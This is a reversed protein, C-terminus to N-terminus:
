RSPLAVNTCCEHEYGKDPEGSINKSSTRGFEPHFTHRCVGKLKVRVGNVYIGDSERVEVTRFGIRTDTRHIRKGNKDLITFVANYLEPSEPSWLSPNNLRGSIRTVPTISYSEFASITEGSLNQIEVVLKSANKLGSLYVDAVFQGDAHADVAVRCINEPPKAEMYVPRFIGGFIWYDSEREALSVSMNDSQKKVFVELENEKGFQILKGINYSFRYFAGQHIPGAPRGNIKVEADTMVGEFVIRIEKNKWTSPAMFRYKYRGTENLRDEPKSRGFNYAGFGQQEWCSPVEITTWKGSNMGASCFFDWKKTHDAGTGSLYIVETDQSLANSIIFLFLLLNIYKM